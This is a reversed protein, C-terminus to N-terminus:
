KTLNVITALETNSFLWGLVFMGGYIMWKLNQIQGVTKRIETTDLCDIADIKAYIDKIERTLESRRTEFLQYIDKRNDLLEEM